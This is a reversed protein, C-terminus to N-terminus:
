GGLCMTLRGRGHHQGSQQSPPSTARGTNLHASLRGDGGPRGRASLQPVHRSALMASQRTCWGTAQLHLHHNDRAHTIGSSHHTALLHTHTRHSFPPPISAPARALPSLRPSLDPCAPSSHTHLMGTPSNTSLHSNGARAEARDQSSLPAARNQGWAPHRSCTLNCCAAAHGTHRLHTSILGHWGIFHHARLPSGAVLPPLRSWATYLGRAPLTGAGGVRFSCFPSGTHTHPPPTDTHSAWRAVPDRQTQTWTSMSKSHLSM